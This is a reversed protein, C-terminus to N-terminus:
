KEDEFQYFLIRSYNCNRFYCIAFRFIATLLTFFKVRRGVGQGVFCICSKMKWPSCNGRFSQRRKIRLHQCFRVYLCASPSQAHTHSSRATFWIDGVAM